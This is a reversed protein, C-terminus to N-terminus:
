DSASTAETSESSEPTEVPASSTNGAPPYPQTGFRTLVVAGLGACGVIFAVVWILPQLCCLLSLGADVLAVIGTIILTGLSAAWIRVVNTAKLAKFLLDGVLTGICIWGLLGIAFLVLGVLFGIPSLCITLILMLALAGGAFATLLGYGLSPWPHESITHGVREVQEPWILAVLGAIAAILVISVVLSIIRMMTNMVMQPGTYVVDPVIPTVPTEIRPLPVGEIIDGDIRASLDQELGCDWSCVVNGQVWADEDLYISGGSVVVDGEVTGEIEANGGWVVVSGEVTGGAEIIANGGFVTLDGKLTEGSGITYDEGFITIGGNDPPEEGALAPTAPILLAIIVLAAVWMLRRKFMDM